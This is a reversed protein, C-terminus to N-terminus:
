SRSFCTDKPVYNSRGACDEHLHMIVNIIVFMIFWMEGIVELDAILSALEQIHLEQACPDLDFGRGDNM